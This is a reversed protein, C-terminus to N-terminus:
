AQTTRRGACHGSWGLIPPCAEAFPMTTSRGSGIMWRFRRESRWTTPRGQRRCFVISRKLRFSLSNTDGQSTTHAHYVRCLCSSHAIPACMDGHICQRVGEGMTPFVPRRVHAMWRLCLVPRLMTHMSASAVGCQVLQCDPERLTNAIRRGDVIVGVGGSGAGQASCVGEHRIRRFAGGCERVQPPPPDSMTGAANVTRLIAHGSRRRWRSGMPAM